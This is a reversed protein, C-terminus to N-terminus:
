GRRKSAAATLAPRPALGRRRRQADLHDQLAAVQGQWASSDVDALWRAADGLSGPVFAWHTERGRREAIVVGADLLVQLHKAIAQRTVPFEEALQTATSSGGAAALAILVRRRTADALAEFVPTSPENM